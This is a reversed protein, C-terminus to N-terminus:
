EELNMLKTRSSAIRLREMTANLSAHRKYEQEWWVEGCVGVFTCRIDSPVFIETVPLRLHERVPYRSPPYLSLYKNGSFNSASTYTNTSLNFGRLCAISFYHRPNSFLQSFSSSLHLVRLKGFFDVNINKVTHFNEPCQTTQVYFQLVHWFHIWSTKWFPKETNSNQKHDPLQKHRAVVSHCLLGNSEQHVRQCPLAHRWCANYTSASTATAWQPTLRQPFEVSTGGVCTKQTPCEWTLGM